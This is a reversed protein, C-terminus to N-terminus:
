GDASEASDTSGSRDAGRTVSTTLVEPFPTTPLLVQAGGSTVFDRVPISMRVVEDASLHRNNWALDVANGLSLRDDLTFADSLSAAFRTLGSSARCGPM